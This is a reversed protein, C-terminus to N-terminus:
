VSPTCWRRQQYLYNHINWSIRINVFHQNIAAEQLTSQTEVLMTLGKVKAARIEALVIGAIAKLRERDQVRQQVGGITVTKDAVHININSTGFQPFSDQSLTITNVVVDEKESNLPRQQAYVGGTIAANLATSGKLIGFIIADTDFTQKM